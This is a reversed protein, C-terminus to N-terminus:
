PRPAVWIENRSGSLRSHLILCKLRVDLSSSFDPANKLMDFVAYRSRRIESFVGLRGRLVPANSGAPCDVGAGGRHYARRTLSREISTQLGNIGRSPV